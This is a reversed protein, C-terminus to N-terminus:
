CETAGVQRAHAEMGAGREGRQHAHGLLAQADSDNRRRDHAILEQRAPEDAQIRADAKGRHKRAAQSEPISDRDTSTMTSM